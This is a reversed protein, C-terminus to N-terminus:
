AIMWEFFQVSAVQLVIESVLYSDVLDKIQLMKPMKDYLLFLRNKCRLDSLGYHM